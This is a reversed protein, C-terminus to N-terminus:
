LQSGCLSVIHFSFPFEWEEQIGHTRESPKILQPCSTQEALLFAHVSKGVGFVPHKEEFHMAIKLCEDILWPLQHSALGIQRCQCISRCKYLRVIM